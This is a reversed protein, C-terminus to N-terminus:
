VGGDARWREYVEGRVMVALKPSWESIRDAILYGRRRLGRVVRGVYKGNLGTEAGVVALTEVVEGKGALPHEDLRKCYFELVRRESDSLNDTRFVM